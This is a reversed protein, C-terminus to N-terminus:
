INSRPVHSTHLHPPKRPTSIIFFSGAPSRNCRSKHAPSSTHVKQIRDIKLKNKHLNIYTIVGNIIIMDAGDLLM